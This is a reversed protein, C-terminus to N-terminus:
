RPLVAWFVAKKWTSTLLLFRRVTLRGSSNAAVQKPPGGGRGNAPTAGQTHRRRRENLRRTSIFFVFRVGTKPDESDSLTNIRLPPKFKAIIIGIWKQM